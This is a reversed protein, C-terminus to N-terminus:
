LYQHVATVDDTKVLSETVENIPSGQPCSVVKEKISESRTNYAFTTNEEKDQFFIPLLSPFIVCFLLIFSM